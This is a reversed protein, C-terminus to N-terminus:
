HTSEKAQKRERRLTVSLKVLDAIVWAACAMAICYDIDQWTDRKFTVKYFPNFVMTGVAAILAEVIKGQKYYMGTLIAFGVFAAFRIFQYYNYPHHGIANFFLIGITIKIIFHIFIEKKM